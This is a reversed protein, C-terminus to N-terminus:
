LTQEDEWGGRLEAVRDVLMGHLRSRDVSPVLLTDRLDRESEWQGWAGDPSALNEIWDMTRKVYALTEPGPQPVVDELFSQQQQPQAPTPDREGTPDVGSVMPLTDSTNVKPKPPPANKAAQRGRKKAQKEETEEVVAAAPEVPIPQKVPDPDTTLEETTPAPNITSQAKAIENRVFDPRFGESGTRVNKNIRDGLSQRMEIINSEPADEIEDVAHFGFVAEPLHRRIWDRTTDYWLQMDPKRDWLPSGRPVRVTNGDILKTVHGPHLQKLPPSEHEYVFNDPDNKIRGNVMLKREDGEGSYTGKLGGHLYPRALAHFLQSEFCLVGKIVYAKQAVLPFAMSTRAAIDMLCIVVAINSRIEPKLFLNDPKCLGQAITVYQAFNDPSLGQGPLVPITERSRQKRDELTEVLGNQSPSPLSNYSSSPTETETYSM